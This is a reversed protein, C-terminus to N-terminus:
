LPYNKALTKRFHAFGICKQENMDRRYIDYYYTWTEPFLHVERVKGPSPHGYDRILTNDIWSIADLLKLSTRALKDVITIRYVFCRECGISSGM